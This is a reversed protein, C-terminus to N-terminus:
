QVIVYENTSIKDSFSSSQETTYSSKKIQKIRVKIIYKADNMWAPDGKIVEKLTLEYTCDSTWTINFVLKYGLSDNEEVQLNRTRKIVTIGKNKKLISKFTGIHLSKCTRAQGFLVLSLTMIVFFLIASKMVKQKNLIAAL